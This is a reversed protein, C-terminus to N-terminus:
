GGAIFRAVETKTISGHTVGVCADGAHLVAPQHLNIGANALMEPTLDGSSTPDPFDPFGHSRICRAFALADALGTSTQQAATQTGSGSSPLVHDCAKAASAFLPNGFPIRDKPIRGNTPDPFNSVGHSRMCQSYAVGAVLGRATAPANTSSGGCGATLLSVAAFAAVSAPFLTRSSM